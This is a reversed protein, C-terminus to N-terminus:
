EEARWLGDWSRGNEGQQLLQWRTEAVKYQELREEVGRMERVSLPKLFPRSVRRGGGHILCHSVCLRSM